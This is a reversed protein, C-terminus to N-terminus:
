TLHSTDAYAEHTRVYAGDEDRGFDLHGPELTCWSPCDPVVPPAAAEQELRQTIRHFAGSVDDVDSM